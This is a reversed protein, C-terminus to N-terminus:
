TRQPLSNREVSSDQIRFPLSSVKTLIPVCCLGRIAKEKDNEPLQCVVIHHMVAVLQSPAHVLIDYVLMAARQVNAAQAKSMMPM